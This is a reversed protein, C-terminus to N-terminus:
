LKMEKKLNNLKELIAESKKIYLEPSAMMDSLLKSCIVACEHVKEIGLDYQSKPTDLNVLEVPTISLENCIAELKKEPISLNDIEYKALTERSIGTKEALESQTYGKIKRYYKLKAGIKSM